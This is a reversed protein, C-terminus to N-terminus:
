TTPASNTSDSKTVGAAAAILTVLECNTPGSIATIKAIVAATPPVSIESPEANGTLGNIVVTENM